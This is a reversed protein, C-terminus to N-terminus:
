KVQIQMDVTSNSDGSEYLYPSVIEGFGFKGVTYFIKKSNRMEFFCNFPHMLPCSIKCLQRIQIPQFLIERKRSPSAVTIASNENDM